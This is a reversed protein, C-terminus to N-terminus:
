SRLLQALKYRFWVICTAAIVGLSAVENSTSVSKAAASGLTAREECGQAPRRLGKPIPFAFTCVRSSYGVAKNLGNGRVGVREGLLPLITTWNPVMRLTEIKRRAPLHSEREKPLPNPHPPVPTRFFRGFHFHRYPAPCTFRSATKSNHARERESFVMWLPTASRKGGCEMHM